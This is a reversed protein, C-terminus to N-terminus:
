LEMKIHKEEIVFMNDVLHRNEMWEHVVLNAVNVGSLASMEMASAALEIANVYYMRPALVFPVLDMDVSYQPYANWKILKTSERKSFLTDLQEESLDDDAFVKWVKQSTKSGDVPHIRGLSNYFLKSGITYIASPMEDLSGYGFYKYNVMGEVVYVSLQHFDRELESFNMDFGSFHINRQGKVLPFALIVVDYEQSSGDTTEVRYLPMSANRTLNFVASVAKNIVSAGSQKILEQPVRYNGGKVSWLGPQAGALSVSGAICLHM